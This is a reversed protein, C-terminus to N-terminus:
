PGLAGSPGQGGLFGRRPERAGRSQLHDLGSLFLRGSSKPDQRRSKCTVGRSGPWQSGPSRKVFPGADGGCGLVGDTVWWAGKRQRQENRRGLLIVATGHPQDLRPAHYLTFLSSSKGASVCKGTFGRAEKYLRIFTKSLIM